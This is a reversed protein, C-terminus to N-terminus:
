MFNDRITRAVIERKTHINLNRNNIETIKGSKIDFEISYMCGRERCVM